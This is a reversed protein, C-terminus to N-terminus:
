GLDANPDFTNCSGPNGSRLGTTLWKERQASTGHTFKTEDVRHGGLQSQIFDDGIHAAADLARRIDDRSVEDILPKGSRTPVSTAHSAWVGAYCDAQLELRVSASAPGSDGAKVKRSTGLQNQVHHGYEHALVYAEVFRGGQAGFRSHLEKFFNLDIYVDSDAPCYFPGSDSTAGGCGTRVSGRFFKTPAKQYNKGIQHLEENWFGQISNISAVLACDDRNNADRGTRCQSALAGSDTQQGNNVQDLSVPLGGGGGGVLGTLLVYILVGAISLGGGGLAILGGGGLGGGSSGVEEVQSADLDADENFRM